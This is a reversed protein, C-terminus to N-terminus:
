LNQRVARALLESRRRRGEGFNFQTDMEEKGEKNESQIGLVLGSERFSRSVDNGSSRAPFPLFWGLLYFAARGSKPLTAVRENQHLYYRGDVCLWDLFFCVRWVWFCYRANDVKRFKVTHIILIIRHNTLM